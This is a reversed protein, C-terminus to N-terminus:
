DNMLLEIFEGVAHHSCNSVVRDAVAKVQEQANEPAASRAALQLMEIDNHFDGIACLREQEWGLQQAIKRLAAGKSVGKVMIELYLPSSYVLDVAQSFEAELIARLEELREHEHKILVKFTGEYSDQVGLQEFAVKEKAIFPDEDIEGIIRVPGRGFIQPLCGKCRELSRKILDAALRSDLCTEFLYREAHLDYAAAGNSVIVPANVAIDSLHPRAVLLSRGTAVSFLGGAKTFAEIARKNQASVKGDGGILTGDMDSYLIKNQM